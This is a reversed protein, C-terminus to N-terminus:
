FRRPQIKETYTMNLNSLSFEGCQIPGTQNPYYPPIFYVQLAIILDILNVLGPKGNIVLDPPEYFGGSKKIDNEHIIGIQKCIYM